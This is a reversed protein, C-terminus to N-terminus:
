NSTPLFLVNPRLTGRPWGPITVREYGMSIVWDSIQASPKSLAKQLADSVEALIPPRDQVLYSGLGMLAELEHGEVDIKVFDIHQIEYSRCLDELRVSSVTIRDANPVYGVSSWAHEGKRVHLVLTGSHNSAAAEVSDCWAFGNLQLNRQLVSRALPHPEVAIVRGDPGVLSALLTAYYGVNAGIDLVVGGVPVHHKVLEVEPREYAGFAMARQHRNGADLFMEAWPLSFRHIGSLPLRSVLNGKGRFYPRWALRALSHMFDMRHGKGLRCGSWPVPTVDTSVVDQARATFSM